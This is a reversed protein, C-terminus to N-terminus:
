LIANPPPKIAPWREAITILAAKMNLWDSAAKGGAPYVVGAYGVVTVCLAKEVEDADKDAMDRLIGFIAASQFGGVEPKLAIGKAYRFMLAGREMKNKKVRGLLIRPSFTV